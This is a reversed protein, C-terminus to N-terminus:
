TIQLASYVNRLKANPPKCVFSQHASDSLQAASMQAASIQAVSMQAVSMQDASMQAVSMQCKVNSVFLSKHAADSIQTVNM